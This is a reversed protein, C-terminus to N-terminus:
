KGLVNQEVQQPQCSVGKDNENTRLTQHCQMFRLMAGGLKWRPPSILWALQFYRPPYATSKLTIRFVDETDKHPGHPCVVWLAFALGMAHQGRAKFFVELPRPHGRALAFPPATSVSQSGRCVASAKSGFKHNLHPKTIASDM